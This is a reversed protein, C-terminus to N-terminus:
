CRIRRPHEHHVNLMLPSRLRAFCAPPLVSPAPEIPNPVAVLVAAAVAAFVVLAYFWLAVYCAGLFLAM